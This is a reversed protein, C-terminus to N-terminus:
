NRRIIRPGQQERVFGDHDSLRAWSRHVTMTRHLESAIVLDLPPYTVDLRNPALRAWQKYDVDPGRYGRVDPIYTLFTLYHCTITSLLSMRTREGRVARVTDGIDLTAQITGLQFDQGHRAMWVQSGPPLSGGDMLIRRIEATTAWPSPGCLADTVSTKQVWRALIAANEASLVLATGQEAAHMLGLIFPKAATELKSMWRNNCDGCVERTVRNLISSPKTTITTRHEQFTTDNAGMGFGSEHSGQGAPLPGVHDWMWQPWIHEDSRHARGWIEGCFACCRSRHDRM